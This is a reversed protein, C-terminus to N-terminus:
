SAPGSAQASRLWKSMRWGHWSGTILGALLGNLPGCIPGAVFADGLWEGIQGFVLGFSGGILMGLLLGRAISLIGSTALRRFMAGVAAGLLGSPIAVFMFTAIPAIIWFLVTAAFAVDVESTLGEWWERYSAACTLHFLLFLITGIGSATIGLFFGRRQVESKSPMAGRSAQFDSSIGM